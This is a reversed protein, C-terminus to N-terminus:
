FFDNVALLENKNSTFNRIENIHNPNVVLIQDKKSVMRLGDIPSVCKFGSVELFKSHRNVDADIVIVNIGKEHLLASLVIGKGAAGWIAKVNSQKFSELFKKKCNMLSSFDSRM